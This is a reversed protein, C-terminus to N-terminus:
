PDRSLVWLVDTAPTKGPALQMATVRNGARVRRSIALSGADIECVSGTDPTLVFVKGSRSHAVIGGPAADLPIQKRVHFRTLDVVAVSRSGQNAVFCYGNFGRAKRRGCALGAAATLLVSRRSIRSVTAM